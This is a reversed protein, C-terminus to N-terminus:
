RRKIKKPKKPQQYNSTAAKRASSAQAFAKDQAEREADKTELLHAHFWDLELKTM